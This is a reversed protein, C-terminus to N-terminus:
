YYHNLLVNYITEANLDLKIQALSELYPLLNSSQQHLLHDIKDRVEWGYRLAFHQAAAHSKNPDNLAAKWDKYFTVRKELAQQAPTSYQTVYGPSCTMGVPTTRYQYPYM